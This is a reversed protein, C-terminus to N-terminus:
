VWMKKLQVSWKSWAFTSPNVNKESLVGIESNCINSTVDRGHKDCNTAVYCNSISHKTAWIKARPLFVNRTLCAPFTIVTEPCYSSQIYGRVKNKSSRWYRLSRDSIFYRLAKRWLFINRIELVPAQISEASGTNRCIACSRSCVSCNVHCVPPSRESIDQINLYM